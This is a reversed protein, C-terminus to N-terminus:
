RDRLEESRRYTLQVLGKDFTRTERLTLEIPRRTKGFLRTGEGLIVPVVSLVMEDIFGHDLFQQAVHAGGEIWIDKGTVQKARRLVAEADEDTFIVDAREPRREPPRHSLVFTPVPHANEWGHKVEIDYTRRGQIIAGIGAFFENYGYDVDNYRFLWSIDDDKGAVFGDLSMAIYLVTRSM